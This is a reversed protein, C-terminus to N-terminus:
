RSQNNKLSKPNGSKNALNYKIVKLTPNEGKLFFNKTQTM